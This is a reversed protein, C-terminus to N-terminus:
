TGGLFCKYKEKLDFPLLDIIHEPIGSKNKKSVEQGDIFIDLFEWFAIFLNRDKEYIFEMWGDVILEDLENFVMIGSFNEVKGDLYKAAHGEICSDSWDFKLNESYIGYTKLDNILQTEVEKRLKEGMCTSLGLNSYNPKM